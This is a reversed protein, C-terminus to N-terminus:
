GVSDRRTTDNSNLIERIDRVPPHGFARRYERSFQTPSEYGVRLAATAADLSESLMLERAHHLRLHKQFQLPSMATMARFHHHLTSVGMNAVEALEEVRLPRAYNEKLWAVAKAVRNSNTGALAFRRLRAGQEGTLLRYLIENQIHNALFPIDAPSDTLSILRLLADFLEPKAAGVVVGLDRESLDTQHIDNDAIIRRLKELDLRLMAAVYPERESAECIQGTMPLGIATLFFCSEDYILTENGVHVRKSGKIILSLSPEYVASFPGAPEVVRYLSLGPIAHGFRLGDWPLQSLKDLIRARLSATEEILDRRQFMTERM